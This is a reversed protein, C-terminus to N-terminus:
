KLFGAEKLTKRLSMRVVTSLSEGTKAIAKELANVLDDDLIVNINHGARKKKM